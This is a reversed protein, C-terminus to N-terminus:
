RASFFLLQPITASFSSHNKISNVLYWSKGPSARKESGEVQKKLAKVREKELAAKRFHQFADKSSKVSAQAVSQSALKAWSDANKLVIEQM